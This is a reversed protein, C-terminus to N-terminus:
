DTMPPQPWRADTGQLLEDPPPTTGPLHRHSWRMIEVLVPVLDRGNETPAYTRERGSPGPTMVVLGAEQLRGLRDTLTNSAIHEDSKQFDGFQRKDQFLLDRMVLLTWPDGFIDLASSVPCTSRHRIPRAM